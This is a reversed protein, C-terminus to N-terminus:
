FPLLEYYAKGLIAWTGRYVVEFALQDRYSVLFVDDLQKVKRDKFLRGFDGVRVKFRVARESPRVARYLEAGNVSAVTEERGIDLTLASRGEVNQMQPLRPLDRCLDGIPLRWDFGLANEFLEPTPALVGSQLMPNGSLLLAEEQWVYTTYCACNVQMGFVKGDTFVANVNGYEGLLRDPFQRLAITFYRPTGIYDGLPYRYINGHWDAYLWARDDGLVLAAAALQYRNRLNRVNAILRLLTQANRGFSGVCRIDGLPAAIADADLPYSAVLGNDSELHFRLIGDCVSARMEADCLSDRLRTLESARFRCLPVSTGETDEFADIFEVMAWWQQHNAFFRLDAGAREAFARVRGSAWAARTSFRLLESLATKLYRVTM